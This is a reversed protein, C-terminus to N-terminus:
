QEVQQNLFQEMDQLLPEADTHFEYLVALSELLEKAAAVDGDRAMQDVRKLADTLLQTTNAQGSRQERLERLRHAVEYAEEGRTPDDALVTNLAVLLREARALDGSRTLSRAIRLFRDVESTVEVLDEAPETAATREGSQAWWVGAILVAMCGLLVWTNDFLQGLASKEHAKRVEHAVADRMMTAPGPGRTGAGATREDTGDIFAMTAAEHDMGAVTGFQTEESNSLEVRKVVERLRLSVVHADQFRKAPDKEMLQCVVDELLRPVSPSYLTPRDFRGTQHLRLIDLPTKGTFPPRGTLMAYLVAGLSYLDSQKTCRRGEAQEPSMYEATGIVGGTVTLRREAFVQAVGFDTLKVIGDTGILLNSPKLDRHIVGAVHAAKLATCVQLTIDIAEDWNLKRRERLVDALTHGEVYEMSFYLQELQEDEGDDFLTVIHPGSLKRLTEAERRFREAVGPDRSLGASLVKVAAIQETESHEGLYVTGMGGAGLKREIVWPGIQDPIKSSAPQESDSM